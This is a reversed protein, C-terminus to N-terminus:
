QGEERMDLLWLGPRMERGPFEKRDLLAFERGEGARRAIRSGYPEFLPHDGPYGLRKGHQVVIPFRLGLTKCVTHALDPMPAQCVPVLQRGPLMFGRSFHAEDMVMYDIGWKKCFKRVSAVDRAYYAQVMSELRPELMHWLGKSWPHALEYSALVSRRGFTLVNDMTYPHGAYLASAPTQRVAAYLPADEGYDYLGEGHLRLGALALCLVILCGGLVASWPLRSLWKKTALGLLCGFLVVYGLNTTYELYRSPIFLALLLLRAAFYLVVSAALLFLFPRLKGLLSRWNAVRAGAWLIPLTCLAVLTGPVPGFERFPLLRELPRAVLEHLLSPVPVIPFRGLPGFLPNGQMQAADVMPGFGSGALEQNYLLVPLASIVIVVYDQWRTPAPPSPFRRMRGVLWGLGLALGCLAYIYPLFLGLLLLSVLIGMRALHQVAATHTTQGQQWSLWFLAMLPAGFSRALGGSITHLFFPSLWYLCLVAWGAARGALGRGLAFLLGGLVIFELGALYKSFELPSVVYSALRYVIKVGWTVYRQAYDALRDNKYLEPDQWQQTWFLQQRTDDNVIFPEGLAHGHALGFLVTTLALALWLERHRPTVDCNM